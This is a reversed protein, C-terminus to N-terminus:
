TLPSVLSAPSPHKQKTNIILRWQYYHVPFFSPLQVLPLTCTCVLPLRSRTSNSQPGVVSSKCPQGKSAKSAWNQVYTRQRVMHMHMYYYYMFQYYVQVSQLNQRTRAKQSNPCSDVLQLLIYAPTHLVSRSQLLTVQQCILAVSQPAQKKLMPTNLEWWIELSEMVDM